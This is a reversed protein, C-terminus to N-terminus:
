NEGTLIIKARPKDYIVKIINLFIGEIGQKKLVNIIYPHQIKDSAKETDISLIM